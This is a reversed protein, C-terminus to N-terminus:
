VCWLSCCVCAVYTFLAVIYTCVSVHAFECKCIDGKLIISFKEM